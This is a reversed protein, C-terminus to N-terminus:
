WKSVVLGDCDKFVGRLINVVDVCAWIGAVPTGIVTIALILMTLGTKSQGVYFRHLGFGGLVLALLFATFRSKESIKMSFEGRIIGGDAVM